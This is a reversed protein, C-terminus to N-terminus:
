PNDYYSFKNQLEALQKKTDKPNITPEYRYIVQDEADTKVVIEVTEEFINVNLIANIGIRRCEELVTIAQDRKKDDAIIVSLARLSARSLTDVTPEQDRTQVSSSQAGPTNSSMEVDGHDDKPKVGQAEVFASGSLPRKPEPQMDQTGRAEVFTSGSPTEAKEEEQVDVAMNILDDVPPRWNIANGYIKIMSDQIYGCAACDTMWAEM